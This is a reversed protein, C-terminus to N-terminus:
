RDVVSQSYPYRYRALKVPKPRSLRDCAWEWFVPVALFVVASLAFLLWWSGGSMFAEDSVTRM